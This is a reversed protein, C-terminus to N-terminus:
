EAEGGAPPVLQVVAEVVRPLQGLERAATQLVGDVSPYGVLRATVESVLRERAARRQTEELLRVNELALAMREAVAEALATEREGWEGADVPRHFGIVGIPVGRLKVPVALAYREMGEVAVRRSVPEGRQRAEDFLSRWVEDPISSEEVWYRQVGPGGEVFQEWARVTMAQYVHGLEELNRQMQELLRANDLGVAFQDALTQFTQIQEDPIPQEDAIHVDLVGVLEGRARLPLVLRWRTWRLEPLPESVSLFLAEGERVVRAAPDESDVPIRYGRDALRRGGASSAAQLVLRERRHDLRFLGVHYLAFREAMLDLFQDILEREGRLAAIQRAVEAATELARTREQLLRNAEELRKARERLMNQVEALEAASRRASRLTSLQFRYFRALLLLLLGLLMTFVAGGYLWPELTLPNDLHVLWQAMQGQQALLTFVLFALIGLLGMVIGSGVGALILALVPLALMFIRGDGALGGRAFAVVGIAYGLLLLGWARVRPNLRRFIALALLLLYSGLFIAAATWQRPDQVAVYVTWAVIPGGAIGVVTLLANLVRVRWAELEEVLGPQERELAM